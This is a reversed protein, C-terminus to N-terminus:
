NKKSIQFTYIFLFFYRTKAASNKMILWDPKAPAKSIDLLFELFCFKDLFLIESFFTDPFLLLEPAGLRNTKLLDLCSLRESFLAASLAALSFALNSCSPALLM